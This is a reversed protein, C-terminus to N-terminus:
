LKSDKMQMPKAPLDMLAMGVMEVVDVACGFSLSWGAGGHGYSHVIRSNESELGSKKGHKRLEREVRVNHARFPRLGQAVPYEPDLRANKLRPLFEICREKMRQIIPSELTLDLNWEHPQAIGGLILINENRPVIFVIANPDQPDNVVNASIALAGTVKEFDTGDNIVRILAGRIPFCTTDGATEASALGTANIIADAAFLKRLSREQSFLDGHITHTKLIAGKKSVLDLLWTMAVDTDITPASYEYADVIGFTTSVGAEKALNPDRRFNRIGGKQFELMKSHQPPDHEVAAFNATSEIQLKSASSHLKNPLWHSFSDSVHSLFSFLLSRFGLERSRLFSRM